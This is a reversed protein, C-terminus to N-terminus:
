CGLPHGMRKEREKRFLTPPWVSTLRIRPFPVVETTGYLGSFLNLCRLTALGPMCFMAREGRM